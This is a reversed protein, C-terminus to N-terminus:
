ANTVQYSEAQVFFVKWFFCETDSYQAPQQDLLIFDVLCAQFDNVLYNRRGPLFGQGSARCIFFETTTKNGTVRFFDPSKRYNGSFPKILGVSNELDVITVPLVLPFYNVLDFRCGTKIM